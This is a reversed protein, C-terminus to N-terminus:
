KSLHSTYEQSLRQSRVWFSLHQPFHNGISIFPKTIFWYPFPLVLYSGEGSPIPHDLNCFWVPVVVCSFSSPILSMKKLHIRSPSLCSCALVKFWALSAFMSCSSFSPGPLNRSLSFSARWLNVSISGLLSSPLTIKFSLNRVWDAGSIWQLSNFCTYPGFWDM